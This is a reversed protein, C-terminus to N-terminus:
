GTCRTSRADSSALGEAARSALRRSSASSSRRASSCPVSCSHPRRLHQDVDAATATLVEGGIESLMSVAKVLDLEPAFVFPPLVDVHHQVALRIFGTRTRLRPPPPPPPSPSSTPPVSCPRRRRRRAVAAAAALGCPHPALGPTCERILLDRVRVLPPRADALELGSRRPRREALVLRSPTITSRPPDRRLVAGGGRELTNHVAFGGVCVSTAYDFWRRRRPCNLRRRASRRFSRSACSWRVGQRPAGGTSCGLSKLSSSRHPPTSGPRRPGEVPAAAVDAVAAAAVAADAVRSRRIRLNPRHTRRRSRSARARAGLSRAFVDGVGDADRLALCALVEDGRQRERGGGALEDLLM